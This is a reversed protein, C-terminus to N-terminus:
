SQILLPKSLLRKKMFAFGSGAKLYREFAYAQKEDSLAVYTELKWPAHQKSYSNTGNNHDNLRRKLNNTRGIYTKNPNKKSTLIYVYTM